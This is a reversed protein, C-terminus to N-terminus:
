WPRLSCDITWVAIPYALSAGGGSSARRAGRRDPRAGGVHDGAGRVAVDVPQRHQQQGGVRVRGTALAVDELLQLVRDVRVHAHVVAEPRDARKKSRIMRGSCSSVASGSAIRTRVSGASVPATVMARGWSTWVSANSKGAVKKSGRIQGIRRAAAPDRCAHGLDRAQQRRGARGGDDRTAADM